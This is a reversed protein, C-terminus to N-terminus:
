NMPVMIMKDETLYEGVDNIAKIEEVAARYNRAIDWVSEGAEAFYITMAGNDKHNLPQREDVALDTVLSMEQTLYIAARVGLEIRLDMTKSGTITYNSSRVDIQPECTINGKEEIPFKYSFEVPKEYYSPIGKQDYVIINALLTGSVCLEGEDMRANVSQIDCWMDAVESLAGEAFDLSAKCQCSEDITRSIKQFGVDSRKLNAEFKRSYADLVVDVDNDCCATTSILLKANLIFNRTEGTAATRPKVEICAIEAKTDCRCQETVGPMELLQSFPIQARVQQPAGQNSCYLLSVSLEGRVINKENLLKSERICADAEYRILSRVTPQGQGIEIEEEVTLYKEVTGMPTTAPVSGRHLEVVPDDFDAIIDNCRRKILRVYIGAAGHIDIKRGTVARCNIYECKTRCNLIAGDCDCGTEFVKNFPFQHEHACIRNDSDCYIVTITVNGDVTVTGGSVSKSSLMPKARCKLIKVIDPCYDPLMFDVDVPLEASENFIIDNTFIQTKLAKQDM